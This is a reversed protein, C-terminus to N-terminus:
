KRWNKPYIHFGEHSNNVIFPKQGPKVCEIMAVQKHETLKDVHTKVEEKTGKLVSGCSAFQGAEVLCLIAYCILQEM